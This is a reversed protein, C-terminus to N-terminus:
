LGPSAQVQSRLNRKSESHKLHPGLDSCPASLMCLIVGQWCGLGPLLGTDAAGKASNCHQLLERMSTELALTVIPSHALPELAGFEFAM